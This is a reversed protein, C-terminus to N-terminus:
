ASGQWSSPHKPFIETRSVRIMDSFLIAFVPQGGGILIAASWGVLIFPWEPANLKFIRMMSVPQNDFETVNEEQANMALTIISERGKMFTPVPAVPMGDADLDEDPQPLSECHEKTQNMVLRYYLGSLISQCLFSLHSHTIASIGQQVNKVENLCPLEWIDMSSTLKENDKM